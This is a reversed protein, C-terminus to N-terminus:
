AEPPPLPNKRPRGRPRKVPAEGAAALKAGNKAMLAERIKKAREEIKQRALEAASIIVTKPKEDPRAGFSGKLVRGSPPKPPEAIISKPVHVPKPEPAAKVPADVVPVEAGPQPHMAKVEDAKADSSETPANSYKAVLNEFKSKEAKEKQALRERKSPRKAGNHKKGVFTKEQKESNRIIEEDSPGRLEQPVEVIQLEPKDSFNTM